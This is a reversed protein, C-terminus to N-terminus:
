IGDLVKRTMFRKFAELQLESLDFVRKTRLVVCSCTGMGM